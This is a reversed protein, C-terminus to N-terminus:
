ESRYPIGWGNARYDDDSDTNFAQGDIADVVMRERGAFRVIWYRVFAGDDRRRMPIRVWGSANPGHHYVHLFVFTPPENDIGTTNDIEALVVVSDGVELRPIRNDVGFLEAPDEVELRTEGNVRVVVRTIRVTRRAEDTMRWERPSLAVLRWRRAASDAAERRVLVARQVAQEQLPKQTAPVGDDPTRDLVFVGDFTMVLEARATDGAVSVTLERNVPQGPRRGWRRLLPVTDQAAVPSLDLDFSASLDLDEAAGDTGFTDTFWGSVELEAVVADRDADSANGLGTPDGCAALALATLGAVALHRRM